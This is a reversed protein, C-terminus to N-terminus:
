LLHHNYVQCVNLHLMWLNRLNKFKKKREVLILIFFKKMKKIASHIEKFIIVFNSVLITTITNHIIYGIREKLRKEDLFTDVDTVDIKTRWDRKLRRGAKKKTKM